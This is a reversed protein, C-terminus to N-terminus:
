STYNELDQAAYIQNKIVQEADTLTRLEEARIALLNDYGRGEAALLDTNLKRAKAEDQLLFIRNQNTILEENGYTALEKLVDAREMNLADTAKGELKAIEIEQSRLKALMEEASVVTRTEKYVEAFGEAVNMLSAYLEQDGGVSVDGLDLSNVLAQFEERTDVSSHGLRAMEATVRKTIPELQQATTLFNEKFFEAKEVFADLGGSVDILNETIRVRAEALSETSVSIVTQSAQEVTRELWGNLEINFDEFISGVISIIPFKKITTISQLNDAIDGISLGAQELALETVQINRALRVITDGFEEAPRRFKQFEPLVLSSLKNFQTSFEATLADTLEEPKLDKLSTEFVINFSDVLSNTIDKDKGLVSAAEKVTNGINKFSERIAEEAIPSDLSGYTTSYNTKDSHFLGGDTTTKVTKYTNINNFGNVIDSVTGSIKIGIDELSTTTEGGFIGNIIENGIQSLGSSGLDIKYETGFQTSGDPNTGAINFGKQLLVASLVDTNENIDKLNELMKNSYEM